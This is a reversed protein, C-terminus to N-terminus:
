EKHILSKVFMILQRLFRLVIIILEACIIIVAAWVIVGVIDALITLDIHLREGVWNVGDRAYNGLFFFYRLLILM